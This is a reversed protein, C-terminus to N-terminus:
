RGTVQGLVFRSIENAVSRHHSDNLIDHYGGAVVVLRGHVFQSTWANADDADTLVDHDGYIVLTPVAISATLYELRPLFEGVARWLAAQGEDGAVALPDHIANDIYSDDDSWIADDALGEPKGSIPAGTLVIGQFAGPRAAALALATLAGLSHGVVFVPTGGRRDAIRGVLAEANDALQDVSDFVGDRNGSLGHGVHDPAWVEIGDRSMEAAFRHFYGSHEGWGHLLLLVAQRDPTTWRRFFFSPASRDFYPVEAKRKPM